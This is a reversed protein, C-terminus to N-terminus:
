RRVNRVINTGTATAAPVVTVTGGPAVITNARPHCVVPAETTTTEMRDETGENSTTSGLTKAPTVLTNQM